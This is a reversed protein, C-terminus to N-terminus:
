FTFGIGAFISSQLLSGFETDTKGFFRNGILYLQAQRGLEYEFIAVLRSSDDNIDRILRLNLSLDDLLKTDTYQLALYNRRYLIDNTTVEGTQFCELLTKDVCGNNDRFYEVNVTPGSEFTYSAGVQGQADSHRHASGEVYLLLADSANWGGFFGLRHEGQEKYSPIVSFYGDKGTYDLKLAYTRRFTDAQNGLGQIATSFNM